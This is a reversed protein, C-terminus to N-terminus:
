GAQIREDIASAVLDLASDWLHGYLDLTMRASKHGLMRQVAKVDAGSAIALSAATHRLDHIRVDPMDAKARAVAFVRSRWNDPDVRGGRSNTLLPEADGRGLDLMALVTASVPVDRGEGNKSKRVRLRGREAKVDGVDLRCAESIRLGCTALLWVMAADHAGTAAALAGIQAVSLYVPDRKVARGAHLGSLDAHDASAGALCQVVKSRLSQSADGHSTQLSSVWAQVERPDLDASKRDGWEEVVYDRALRCAQYGKKSLHKKGQLWLEAGQRVTEDDSPAPPGKVIRDANLAEAEAKTRCATSPYGKVVVRYRLGRGWRKTHQGHRDLWLDQVAM